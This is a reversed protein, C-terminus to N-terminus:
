IYLGQMKLGIQINAHDKCPESAKGELGTHKSFKEISNAIEEEEFGALCGTRLILLSCLLLFIVAREKTDGRIRNQDRSVMQTRCHCSIHSWKFAERFTPQLCFFQPYNSNLLCHNQSRPAFGQDRSRVRLNGPQGRQGCGTFAGCPELLVAVPM